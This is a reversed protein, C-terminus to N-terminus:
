QSTIPFSIVTMLHMTTSYASGKNPLCWWLWWWLFFFFVDVKAVVVATLEVVVVSFEVVVSVGVEIILEVLYVDDSLDSEDWVPFVEVDVAVVMREVVLFGRVVLGSGELLENVPGDNMVEIENASSNSGPFNQFRSFIKIVENTKNTIAANTM